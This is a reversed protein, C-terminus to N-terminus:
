RKECFGSNCAPASAPCDNPGSCAKCNDPAKGGRVNADFYCGCEYDPDYPTLAGMESTRKVKMACDPVLGGHTIAALLPDDLRPFSFRSVITGATASPTGNSIAAFLHVPGWVVYHGDRVNIKDYTFPTSDPLYGCLQGAAQFALVRLRSREPDAVDTSLIGIASGAKTDPVSEMLDRVGGSSKRDIGWWQKPNVAIALSIMQQTGSGSNRVFYLSSDTWPMAAGGNGGMGFVEHAAAASISTENSKTPVVMTMPQIPGLYEAITDSPSYASNCTSAYVDSIGVDTELGAGLTCQTSTMGDTSFVLAQKGVIDKIVHKSPDPNFINDVGACSGSPQYVIQVPAILPAVVGLFPQLATSGAVVVRNPALDSCMPMMPPGMDGAPASTGGDSPPLTPDPLGGDTNCLGLRSCDDFGICQSGSCATALQQYSEPDGFFCGDPGEDSPVCVGDVCLPHGGFVTCDDDTTCQNANRDLLFTCGASSLVAALLVLRASM